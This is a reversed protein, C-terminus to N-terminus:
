ASVAKPKLQIAIFPLKTVVGIYYSFHLWHNLNLNSADFFSTDVQYYYGYKIKDKHMLIISNYPSSGGKVTINIDETIITKLWSLSDTIKSSNLLTALADVTLMNSVTYPVLSVLSSSNFMQKDSDGDGSTFENEQPLQLYAMNNLIAKYLNQANLKNYAEIKVPDTVTSTDYVEVEVAVGLRAADGNFGKNPKIAKLTSMYQEYMYIDKARRMSLLILSILDNMAVENTFAGRLLYQNITLQIYKYNTVPFYEEAVTPEKVSLLTSTKPDLDMVQPLASMRVVKGSGNPVDYDRGLDLISQILGEEHLNIADTYAILNTLTGIFKNALLTIM